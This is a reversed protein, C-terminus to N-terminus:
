PGQVVLRLLRCGLPIGELPIRQRGLTRTTIQSEPMVHLPTTRTKASPLLRRVVDHYRIWDIRAGLQRVFILDAAFHHEDLAAFAVKMQFHALGSVSPTDIQNM